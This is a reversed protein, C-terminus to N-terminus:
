FFGLGDFFNHYNKRPVMLHLTPVFLAVWNVKSSIVFHDECCAGKNAFM